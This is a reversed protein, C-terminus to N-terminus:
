SARYAALVEGLASMSPEHTTVSTLGYRVRRRELEEAADAASPAFLVFPTDLLEDVTIRDGVAAAFERAAAEPERDVVVSQLLLDTRYSRGAARERIEAVRRDTEEASVVTFTGMRQGRVQRLGALGVIEAERAAVDLARESMAGIMVPVPEQVPRPAMAPDALRRRLDAVLETMAAVRGPHDHWPLGADDHESRMHGAGIGVEIRGGTLVDATAVERALLAANWFGANLVYTRLRLRDSVGGAAVLVAFPSAAGVHDPAALVDVGLADVRRVLEAFEVPPPCSFLNVGFELSEM